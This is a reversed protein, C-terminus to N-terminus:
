EDRYWITGYRVLNMADVGARKGTKLLDIFRAMEKGLTRAM